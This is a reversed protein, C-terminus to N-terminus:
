KIIRFIRKVKLLPVMYVAEFIIKKSMKSKGISRDSFVEINTKLKVINNEIFKSIRKSESDTRHSAAIISIKM